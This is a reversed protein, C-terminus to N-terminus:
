NTVEGGATDLDTITDAAPGSLKAFFWDLGAGGTLTDVSTDDKVSTANLAPVGAVSGARLNTVRTAFDDGGLWYGFLADLVALNNSFTTTGAILM